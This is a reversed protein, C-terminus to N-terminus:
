AYLIKVGVDSKGLIVRIAAQYQAVQHAHEPRPAGTKFEIVTVPGSHPVVVADIVGRLVEGPRDDVVCSFPVEFLCQGTGLLSSM